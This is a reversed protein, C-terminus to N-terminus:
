KSAAQPEEEFKIETEVGFTRFASYRFVNETVLLRSVLERHTVSVPLLVGHPSSAYDVTAEDRMPEDENLWESVLTIRVPLRDYRRFWVQGQLNRRVARRGQFITLAEPGTIQRFSVLTMTESGIESEGAPAFQYNRIQRKSFLLILQGFDNVAGTLGHKEFDRLMRKKTQDDKSHLGLTLSRRAKEVSNVKRGDVSIVQRFEHLSHPSDQFASYGYECVITRVDFTPKSFRDLMLTKQQLTEEAVTQPAARLFVEAEESLRSLLPAIPDQQQAGLIATLAFLLAPLRM